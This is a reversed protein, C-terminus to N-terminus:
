VQQWAKLIESSIETEYIDGLERLVQQIEEDPFARSVPNSHGGANRGTRHMLTGESHIKRAILYAVSNKEYEKQLNAVIGKDRVWKKMKEYLSEGSSRGSQTAGRGRELYEIWPAGYIKLVYKGAPMTVESDFMRETRGTTRQGAERHLSKLREVRGRGWRELIEAVTRM